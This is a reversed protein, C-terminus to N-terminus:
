TNETIVKTIHILTKIYFSGRCESREISAENSGIPADKDQGNGEIVWSFGCQFSTGEGKGGHPIFLRGKKLSKKEPKKKKPKEM